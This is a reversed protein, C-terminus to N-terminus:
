AIEVELDLMSIFAQGGYRGVVGMKYIGHPVCSIDIASKYGSFRTCDASVAKFNAVVDSREMRESIMAFFLEDTALNKLMLYTPSNRQLKCGINFAWGYIYMKQSSEIAVWEKSPHPYYNIQDLKVHGGEVMPLGTLSSPLGAKMVTWSKPLGHCGMIELYRQNVMSLRQVAYRLGSLVTEKTSGSLSPVNEAYNLLVTWDSEGVLARRTAELYSRGYKRDPELHAGEAWENWANIFVLREGAPLHEKTYDIAGRIWAEYLDPSSNVFVHGAKKKRATNDWSTMVGPYRRYTPAERALQDKVIDAYDYLKGEFSQELGAIRDNVEQALTNHPPFQVASNFGYQYPDTLGFTEAMCLHIDPFGNESCIQRWMEATAVPNPMLSIRYVILLPAGNILIYRPDKFLPIVDHIFDVDTQENHVQGVLIENESGDWRRSWNENAWCICFPFDPEGSEFVEQLPRELLRRGAFWYYYYCFGYVGHERALRAQAERVEPLRLDYYGLEGPVHPQYHDHFYKRGQAVNTWETFGAGWWEDNEPIPHFQPLYYAILRVDGTNAVPQDSSGEMFAEVQKVSILPQRNRLLRAADQEKASSIWNRIDGLRQATVKSPILLHAKDAQVEMKCVFEDNMMSLSDPLCCQSWRVSFGCNASRGTIASLDPRPANCSASGIARGELFVTVSSSGENEFDILWGHVGANSCSDVHGFVGARSMRSISSLIKKKKPFLSGLMEGVISM